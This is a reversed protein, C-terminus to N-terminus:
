AWLANVPLAVIKQGFPVSEAGTYLIVGRVFRDGLLEAANKLGNLDRATVRSASKVEVGVIKGDPRELLIDVEHGATDRFHYLRPKSRSWSAQKLLEMVAFNELIRRFFTADERLRERDYGILHTLLGTDTMYLKPAKILRKGLNGSWAPLPRVLFTTELLSMYRKLTSQPIDASNSLEAYNQLAGTRAALLSLLRPMASLGEINALDRVDRELITTVYSSFWARRREEAKRQQIEPYGGAVVRAVLSGKPVKEKPGNPTKGSFLLDIFRETTGELEGQSFPHLTLIEIRGALSESVRPLSLVNASGTLIFRGPRRERDVEAKIALLLEPIRQVEDIVMPGPVARIFADPDERVAALTQADDLTVYRAPHKNEALWRVLTSKGSQRAGILMIVPTDTLADLLSPTIHREIMM